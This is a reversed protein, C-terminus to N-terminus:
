DERYLLMRLINLNIDIFYSLQKILFVWFFFVEALNDLPHQLQERVV